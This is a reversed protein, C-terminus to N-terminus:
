CPFRWVYILRDKYQSPARTCAHYSVGYLLSSWSVCCRMLKVVYAHGAAVLSAQLRPMGMAPLKLRPTLPHCQSLGPLQASGRCLLIGCLVTQCCCLYAKVEFSKLDRTYFSLQSSWNFRRPNGTNQVACWLRRSSTHGILNLQTRMSQRTYAWIALWIITYIISNLATQPCYPHWPFPIHFVPM